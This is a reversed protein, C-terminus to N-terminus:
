LIQMSKAINSSVLFNCITLLIADKEADNSLCEM